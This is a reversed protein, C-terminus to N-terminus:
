VAGRRALYREIADQWSPMAVGVAGLKANSLACYTPREARLRVDAVPVALLRPARQLQRAVEVALEYWTCSGSNVCHYLGSPARQELLRQTAVSVDVTYSPSVTRDVFVRAEEGAVIADVIRDVSTRRGGPAGPLGGFLSEVRLVYHQPTEAAFWEGILKSCAYTSRPNPTDGETYPVSARGDFVFDTSYHVLVASAETAAQAMSRVGFANVALAEVPQDEAGDVDTFASCNVIADPRAAAVAAKVAADDRVDLGDLTTAVVDHHPSLQRVMAAGLQGAAGIVLIKMEDEPAPV